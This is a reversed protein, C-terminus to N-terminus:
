HYYGPTKGYVREHSFSIKEDADAIEGAHLDSIGAAANPRCSTHYMVLAIRVTPPLHFSAIITVPNGYFDTQETPHTLSATPDFELFMSTVSIHPEMSELGQEVVEKISIEVM